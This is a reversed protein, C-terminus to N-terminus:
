LMCVELAAGPGTGTSELLAAVQAAGWEPEVKMMSLAIEVVHARTTGSVDRAALADALLGSLEPLAGRMAWPSEVPDSRKSLEVRIAEEAAAAVAKGRAGNLINAPLMCPLSSSAIAATLPAATNCRVTDCEDDGAFREMVWHEAVASLFEQRTEDKERQQRRLLGLV